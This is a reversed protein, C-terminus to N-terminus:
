PPDKYDSVAKYEEETSSRAVSKQKKISWSIQHSGLYVIHASMSTDDQKNGGWDADSFDHFKSSNQRSFFIGQKRTGSLYRIVRKVAQWHVDTPRHMFQSPKNIAFAM